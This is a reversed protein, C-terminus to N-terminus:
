KAIQNNLTTKNAEAAETIRNVLTKELIKAM